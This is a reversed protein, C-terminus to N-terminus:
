RAAAASRIRGEGAVHPIVVYTTDATDAVAKINNRSAIQCIYKACIYKPL